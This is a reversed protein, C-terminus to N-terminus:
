DNTSYTCSRLIREGDTYPNVEGTFDLEYWNNKVNVCNWAHNINKNSIVLCPIDLLVCIDKVANAYNGCVGKGYLILTRPDNDVERGEYYANQAFWTKIYGLQQEQDASYQRAEFTVFEGAFSTIIGGLMAFIATCVIIKSSKENQFEGQLIIYYNNLSNSCLKTCCSKNNKELKM